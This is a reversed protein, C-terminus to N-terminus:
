DVEEYIVVAAAIGADHSISVHFEARPSIGLKGADAIALRPRGSEDHALSVNKLGIKALGLGTAKAFAEKAAYAAALSEAGNAKADAHALEEPTFVRRRFAEDAAARRIRETSCIDIGTGKIM